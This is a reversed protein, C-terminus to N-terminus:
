KKKTEKEEGGKKKGKKSEKGEKTDTTEKAAKKSPATPETAKEQASPQGPVSGLPQAKDEDGSFDSDQCSDEEDKIIDLM